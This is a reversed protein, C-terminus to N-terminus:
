ITTCGSSTHLAGDQTTLLFCTQRKNETVEQTTQYTGKAVIGVDDM